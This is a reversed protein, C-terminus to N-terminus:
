RAEQKLENYRKRHRDVFGQIEGQVRVITAIADDGVERLLEEMAKEARTSRMVAPIGPPPSPEGVLAADTAPLWCPVARRNVDDRTRCAVRARGRDTLVRLHGAVSKPNISEVVQLSAGASIAIAKADDAVGAATVPKGHRQLAYEVLRSQYSM